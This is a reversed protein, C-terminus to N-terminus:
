LELACDMNAFDLWAAPLPIGTSCDLLLVAAAGSLVSVAATMHSIYIKLALFAGASAAGAVFALDFGSSSRHSQM